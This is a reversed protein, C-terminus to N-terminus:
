PADSSVEAGPVAATARHHPRAVWIEALIAGGGAFQLASLTEAFILWGFCAAAVAELFIVLSSFAASLHGLAFALLGQGGTHSIVALAVLAAAGTWTAPLFANEMVLAAVLLAAATILTSRYLILGPHARRRAVRVAFFYAGFFVSTIIGYVDGTLREPEMRISSGVLAGAGLVCLALGAVM